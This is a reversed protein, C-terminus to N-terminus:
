AVVFKRVINPQNRTDDRYCADLSGDGFRELLWATVMCLFCHVIYDALTTPFWFLVSKEKQVSKLIGFICVEFHENLM